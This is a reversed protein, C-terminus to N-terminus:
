GEEVGLFRCDAFKGRTALIRVRKYAMYASFFVWLKVRDWWGIGGMKSTIIKDDRVGDDIIRVVGVRKAEIEDGPSGYSDLVLADAEAGDDASTDRVFGYTFLNPIPSTFDKVIRGDVTKYKVFSYRPTEVVVKM